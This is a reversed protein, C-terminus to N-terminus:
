QLVRRPGLQAVGNAGYAPALRIETWGDGPPERRRNATFVVVVMRDVLERRALSLNQESNDPPMGIFLDRGVEADAVSGDLSVTFTKHSLQLNASHGLEGPKGDLRTEHGGSRGRM